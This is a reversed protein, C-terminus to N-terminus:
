GGFVVEGANFVPGDKCVRSMHEEGSRVTKCSCVLCAGVGCGMREELSVQCPTENEYCVAAVASLMARPGCALVSSYDNDRLEVRLPEIVSGHVGFSGDDTTICVSRCYVAFEDSLLINDSTRFGLIAAAGGKASKAAYLLPATGIGGGVVLVNKGTIEFGNGLPGLVDIYDGAGRKSLWHTGAGRTEFVVSVIGREVNSVSIPRRLLRSHGCKVHLFQGPLTKEAIEPAEFSM